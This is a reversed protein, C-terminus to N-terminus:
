SSLSCTGYFKAVSFYWPSWEELEKLYRCPEISPSSNFLNREDCVLNTMSSELVRIRNLFGNLILDLEPFYNKKTRIREDSGMRSGVVEGFLPEVTRCGDIRAVSSM